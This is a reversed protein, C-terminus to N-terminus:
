YKTSQFNLKMNKKNVKQPTIITEHSPDCTKHTLWILEPKKPGKKISNKKEIKIM